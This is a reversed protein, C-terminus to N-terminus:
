ALVIRQNDRLNMAWAKALVLALADKDISGRVVKALGTSACICVLGFNGEFFRNFRTYRNSIILRIPYYQKFLTAM